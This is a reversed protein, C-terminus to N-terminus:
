ALFSIKKEGQISSENYPVLDPPFLLCHLRSKQEEGEGKGSYSDAAGVASTGARLRGRAGLLVKVYFLLRSSKLPAKLSFSVCGRQLPLLFYKM